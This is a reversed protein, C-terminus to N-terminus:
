QAIGVKRQLYGKVDQLSMNRILEMAKQYDMKETEVQSFGKHRDLCRPSLISPATAGYKVKLQECVSAEVPCPKFGLTEINKNVQDRVKASLYSNCNISENWSWDVYDRIDIKKTLNWMGDACSFYEEPHSLFRKWFTYGAWNSAMDAYSKVGTFALGQVGHEYLQSLELAKQDREREDKINLKDLDHILARGTSFFHDIKDLGIPIGKINLRRVCCGGADTDTNKYVSGSHNQRGFLEVKDAARYENMAHINGGDFEEHVRMMYKPGLDFVRKTRTMFGGNMWSHVVNKLSKVNCGAASKYRHLEELLSENIMVNIHESADAPLPKPDDFDDVEEAQVAVSLLVTLFLYLCSVKLVIINDGPSVIRTM